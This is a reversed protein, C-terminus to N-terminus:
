VFCYTGSISRVIVLVLGHFFGFMSGAIISLFTSGPIIFLQFFLFLAIFTIELLLTDHHQFFELYSRLQRVDDMNKPFQTFLNLLFNWMFLRNTPMIFLFLVKLEIKVETQGKTVTQPFSMFLTCLIGTYVIFLLALLAVKHWLRIRSIGTSNIFVVVPSSSITDCDNNSPVSEIEAESPIPLLKEKETKAEAINGKMILGETVENVSM